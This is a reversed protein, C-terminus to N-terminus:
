RPHIRGGCMRAALAGLGGRWVEEIGDMASALGRLTAMLVVFSPGVARGQQRPQARGGRSCPSTLTDRVNGGLEGCESGANPASRRLNNISSPMKADCQM